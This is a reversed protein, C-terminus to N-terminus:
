KKKPAAEVESKAAAATARLKKLRKKAFSRINIVVLKLSKFEVLSQGTKPTNNNYHLTYSSTGRKRETVFLDTYNSCYDAWTDFSREYWEIETIDNKGKVLDWGFKFKKLLDLAMQKLKVDRLRGGYYNKVLQLLHNKDNDNNEDHDWDAILSMRLGNLNNEKSYKKVVEHTRRFLGQAKPLVHCLLSLPACQILQQLQELGHMTEVTTYLQIRLNIGEGVFDSVGSTAAVLNRQSMKFHEHNFQDSPAPSLIILKEQHELLKEQHHIMNSTGLGEEDGCGGDNLLRELALMDDFNSTSILNTETMTNRGVAEEVEKFTTMRQKHIKENIQERTMDLLDTTIQQENSSVPIPTKAVNVRAMQGLLTAEAVKSTKAKKEPKQSELTAQDVVAQYFSITSEFTILTFTEVEQVCDQEVPDSDKKDYFFCTKLIMKLHNIQEEDFDRGSSHSTSNQEEILFSEKETLVILEDVSSSGSGKASYLNRSLFDSLDLIEINNESTTVAITLPSDELESGVMMFSNLFSNADNEFDEDLPQFSVLWDFYVFPMNLEEKVIEFTTEANENINGIVHSQETFAMALFTSHMEHTLNNHLLWVDQHNEIRKAQMNLFYCSFATMKWTRREQNHIVTLFVSPGTGDLDLYKNTCIAQMQFFLLDYSKAQINELHQLAAAEMAVGGYSPGQNRLQKLERHIKCIPKHSKWDTVQCEKSCYCINKCKSCRLDIEPPIAQGCGLCILAQRPVVTPQVTKTEGVVSM